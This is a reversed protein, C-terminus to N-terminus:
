YLYARDVHILRQLSGDGGRCQGFRNHAGFVFGAQQASATVHQEVQEFNPQDPCNMQGHHLNQVTIPQINPITYTQALFDGVDWQGQQKLIQVPIGVNTQLAPSTVRDVMFNNPDVLGLYRINPQAGTGCQGNGVRNAITLAAIAGRSFGILGVERVPPNELQPNYQQNIDNCIDQVADNIISEIGEGMRGIGSYYRKVLTCGPGKPVGWKFLHFMFNNQEPGSSTGDVIYLGQTCELNLRPGPAPGPGNKVCGSGNWTYGPPCVPDDPVLLFYALVAIVIIGIVKSMTQHGGQNITLYFVGSGSLAADFPRTILHGATASAPDLPM